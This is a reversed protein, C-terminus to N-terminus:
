VQKARDIIRLLVNRMVDQSHGGLLHISGDAFVELAEVEAPSLTITVAPDPVLGPNNHCYYQHAGRGKCCDFMM